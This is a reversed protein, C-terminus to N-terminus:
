RDLENNKDQVAIAQALLSTRSKRAHHGCFMLEGSAFTFIVLAAANCSDCRDSLTLERGVNVTATTM